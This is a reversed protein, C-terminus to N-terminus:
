RRGFVFAVALLGALAFISEFGPQSKTEGEKKAAATVNEQVSEVKEAAKESVAAANEKVEEAVKQTASLNQEMKEGAANEEAGVVMTAVALLVLSAAMIPIIRRM